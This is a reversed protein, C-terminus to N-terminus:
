HFRRGRVHVGAEGERTSGADLRVASAQASSGEEDVVSEIYSSHLSTPSKFGDFMVRITSRYRGSGVVVAERGALNPCRMAGLASTRVRTGASLPPQQDPSAKRSGTRPRLVKASNM